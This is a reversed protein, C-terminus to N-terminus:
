IAQNQFYYNKIEDITPNLNCSPIFLKFGQKCDEPEKSSISTQTPHKIM